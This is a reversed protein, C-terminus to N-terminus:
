WEEGTGFGKDIVIQTLRESAKMAAENFCKDFQAMMDTPTM